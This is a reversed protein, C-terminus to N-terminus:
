PQTRPYERSSKQRLFLRGSSIISVNEMKLGIRVNLFVNEMNAFTKYNNQTKLSTHSPVTCLVVLKTNFYKATINFSEKTHM